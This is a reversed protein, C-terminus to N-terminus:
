ATTAAIQTPPNMDVESGCHVNSAMFDRRDRRKDLLLQLSLQARDNRGCGENLSRRAGAPRRL